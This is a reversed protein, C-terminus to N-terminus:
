ICPRMYTTSALSIERRASFLTTNLSNIVCSCIEVFGNNNYPFGFKHKCKCMEKSACMCDKIYM